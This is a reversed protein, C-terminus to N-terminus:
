QSAGMALLDAARWAAIRHDGSLAYPWARYPSIGRPALDSDSTLLIGDPHSRCWARV